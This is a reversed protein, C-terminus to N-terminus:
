QNREPVPDYGGPNFPHCRCIRKIGMWTGKVVGFRNIAEYTYQSCTPTYRCSSPLVSSIHKQYFRILAMSFTKM